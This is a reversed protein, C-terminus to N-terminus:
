RADFSVISGDRHEEEKKKKGDERVAFKELSPTENFEFLVKPRCALPSSSPPSTPPARAPRRRAGPPTGFTELLGQQLPVGHEGSPIRVLTPVSPEVDSAGSMGMLSTQTWHTLFIINLAGLDSARSGVYSKSQM